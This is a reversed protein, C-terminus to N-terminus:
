AVAEKLGVHPDADHEVAKGLILSTDDSVHSGRIREAM